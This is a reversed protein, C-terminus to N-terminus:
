VGLEQRVADLSSTDVDGEKVDVQEGVFGAKHKRERNRIEENKVHLAARVKPRDEVWKAARKIAAEFRPISEDPIQAMSQIVGLVRKKDCERTIPKDNKPCIRVFWTGDLRAIVISPEKTLQERINDGKLTFFNRGQADIQISNTM